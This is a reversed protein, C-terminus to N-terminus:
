VVSSVMIMTIMMIMLVHMTIVKNSISRIHMVNNCGSSPKVTVKFVILLRM